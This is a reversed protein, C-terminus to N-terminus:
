QWNSLNVRVYFKSLVLMLIFYLALLSTAQYKTASEVCDSQFAIIVFHLLHCLFLVIVLGKLRHWSLLKLILDIFM